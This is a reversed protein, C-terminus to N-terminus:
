ICDYKKIFTIGIPDPGCNTGITSGVTFEPIDVPVSLEKHLLEKVKMTDKHCDGQAICFSYNNIDEGIKEFYDKTMEVIKKMAKKRGRITGHPFLEGDRVVILPKLNLITGALASVKGIRGGKQLYELTGITYMIRGTPILQNLKEVTEDLTYEAQRMKAAELVFLGQLATCLQSDLVVINADPYDELLIERANLASQHSGSFKSTLNICLLDKGERAYPTFKELYDHVSPLSTKPFYNYLKEYFEDLSIDVREKYYTEQDFSVYFPIIDINYQEIFSDPIDCSSDSLIEFKPM